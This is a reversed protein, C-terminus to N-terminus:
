PKFYEATVEIPLIFVDTYRIEAYLGLKKALRQFWSKNFSWKHHPNKKVFPFMGNRWVVRMRLRGKQQLVRLMEKIAKIPDDLHPLIHYAQVEEFVGNRFPLYHADAQIFNEIRKLNLQHSRTTFKREIDIPYLDINVDGFIYDDGCGVNLKLDKDDDM